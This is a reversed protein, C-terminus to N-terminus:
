EMLMTGMFDTQVHGCCFINMLITVDACFYGIVSATDRWLIKFMDEFWKSCVLCASGSKAKGYRAADCSRM